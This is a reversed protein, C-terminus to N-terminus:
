VELGFQLQATEDRQQRTLDYLDVSFSHRALRWIGIANADLALLALTHEGLTLPPQLLGAFHYFNGSGNRDAQKLFTLAFTQEGDFCAFVGELPEPTNVKGSILLEADPIIHTPLAVTLNAEVATRYLPLASPLWHLSRGMIEISQGARASTAQGNVTIKTWLEYAGPPLESVDVCARFGADIAGVGFLVSAEPERRRQVAAHYAGQPGVLLLRITEPVSIRDAALAWGEVLLSAGPRVAGPARGESHHAPLTGRLVRIRGYHPAHTPSDATPRPEALTAFSIRSRLQEVRGGLTGVVALSHVGTPIHRTSFTVDFGAKRLRGHPGLAALDARPAGYNVPLWLADDIVFYLKDFPAEPKTAAAWGVIRLHDNCRLELESAHVATEVRGAFDISGRAFSSPM